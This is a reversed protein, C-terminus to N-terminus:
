NFCLCMPSCVQQMETGAQSEVLEADRLQEAFTKSPGEGNDSASM